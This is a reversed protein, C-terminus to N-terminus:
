LRSKVQELADAGLTRALTLLQLCLAHFAAPQAGPSGLRADAAELPKRCIPCRARQAALLDRIAALEEPSGQTTRASLRRHAKYLSM